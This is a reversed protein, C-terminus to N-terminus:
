VVSKRDIAADTIAKRATVYAQAQQRKLLLVELGEQFRISSFRFYNVQLGLIELYSQLTKRMQNEIEQSHNKLCLQNKKDSDYPYQSCTALLAAEARAFILQDLNESLFTASIADVVQYGFAGSVILPNGEADNVLRDVIRQQWGDVYVKTVELGGSDRLYIGEERLVETVNGFYTIVYDHRPEVIIEDKLSCCLIWKALSSLRDMYGRNVIQNWRKETYSITQSRYNNPSLLPVLDSTLSM